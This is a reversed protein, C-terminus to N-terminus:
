AGHCDPMWSKDLDKTLHPYSAIHMLWRPSKFTPESHSWHCFVSIVTSGCSHEDLSNCLSYHYNRVSTEPCVILLSNGSRARYYGLLACSEDVKCCFFSIVCLQIETSQDKSRGFICFPIVYIFLLLWHSVDSYCKASCKVPTHTHTHAHARTHTRARQMLNLCGVPYELFTFVSIPLFTLPM